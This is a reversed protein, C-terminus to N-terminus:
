QLLMWQKVEKNNRNFTIFTFYNMHKFDNYIFFGFVNPRDKVVFVFKMLAGQITYTFYTRIYKAWFLFMFALLMSTKSVSTFCLSPNRPRFCPSPDVTDCFQWTFFLCGGHETISVLPRDRHILLM